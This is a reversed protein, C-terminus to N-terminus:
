NRCRIHAGFVDTGGGDKGGGVETGGGDFLVDLWFCSTKTPLRAKLVVSSCSYVAKESSPRM